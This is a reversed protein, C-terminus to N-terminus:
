VTSPVRVRFRGNIRGRDIGVRIGFAVSAFTSRALTKCLSMLRKHLDIM